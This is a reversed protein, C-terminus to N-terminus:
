EYRLAIMPDVHAARRAPIYSALLAVGCLLVTVGGFIFPDTSTVGFLLSNMLRTVAFAGALGLLIGLLTLTMSQGLIVKLMNGPRAGLAMRIGIERTRRSVAYAMMGYIGIASLLLAVGAFGGLLTARFRPQATSAEMLQDLTAVRAIPQQSDLAAVEGRILPVLSMPDNKTRVLLTQWPMPEQTFPTYIGSAPEDSLNAQRIDAVVGVIECRGAGFASMEIFRGKPDEHPWYRRALTENIVAVHTSDKTDRHSFYRGSRLPIKMVEFYNNSVIRADAQPQESPSRFVRGDINFATRWTHGQIPLALTAGASEVGPLTEIRGLLQQYFGTWNSWIADASEGNSMSRYVEVTLLHDTRFGPDVRDLLFLSKGLLGAATLLVLSLAIETVVMIRSLRSREVGGRGSEKLAANLGERSVQWAPALGFLIGAFMSILATFTLMLPDVHASSIGPIDKPAWAVLARMLAFALLTGITGGAAALLLSETLLQAIIRRRTAGLSSRIGIEARRAAARALLITSINACAILLVLGASGMLILLAPRFKGVLDEHLPVLRVGLDRNSDPYQQQLGHAIVAMGAQAQSLTVNPKLHGVVSFGLNGRTTIEERFDPRLPTILVWLETESDPFQFSPPMVGAVEYGYGDLTISMGIVLPNSGFSRSWLSHSLVVAQQNRASAFSQGKYPQVGFTEFFDSSVIEGKVHEPQFIGGLNFTKDEYAALSAFFRNQSSWDAFDPYSTTGYLTGSTLDYTGAKVLREACPYPLPRLLVANLISFVGTNAGIGLAFTLVAVTTFGPNKRLQRLGFRCDSIVSQIWNGRREDRVQEKVQEVGGLGMRAARRAEVPGMGARMNEATMLELHSRVENDLDAEVRRSLFLNRLFSRMKVFLRM